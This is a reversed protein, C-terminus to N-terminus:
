LHINLSNEAAVTTATTVTTTLISKVLIHPLVAGYISICNMFLIFAKFRHSVCLGSVRAIEVTRPSM